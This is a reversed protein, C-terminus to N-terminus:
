RKRDVCFVFDQRGTPDTLRRICLRRTFGSLVWGDCVKFLCLVSRGGGFVIASPSFEGKGRSCQSRFYSYGSFIAAFINDDQERWFRITELFLVAVGGGGLARLLCAVVGHYFSAVTEEVNRGTSRRRVGSALFVCM